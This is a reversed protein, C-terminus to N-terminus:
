LHSVSTCLLSLFHDRLFLFFFDFPLKLHGVLNGFSLRNLLFLDYIYPVITSAAYRLFTKMRKRLGIM